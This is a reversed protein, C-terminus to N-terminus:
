NKITKYCVLWFIAAVQSGWLHNRGIEWPFFLREGSFDDVRTHRRRHIKPCLDGMGGQCKDMKVKIKANTLGKPSNKEIKTEKERIEGFCWMEQM